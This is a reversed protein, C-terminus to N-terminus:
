PQSRPLKFTFTTGAAEESDVEISGGHGSVIQKAIYLGLGLHGADRSKSEVSSMPEFIRHFDARPIPSGLNHVSVIVTSATGQAKVTIRSGSAGHTRANTLLNSLVQSIRGKDFSGTLDGTIELHVPTDPRSAVVEEVADRIVTELDIHTRTIPIASGLQSRTFDLLDDVMHNMRLGSSVIRSALTETQPSLDGIEQLFQASTIIAGLPSRLDHGLMALFTERTRDISTVFRVTSEALAQDIAENFRVLDEIDTEDLAGRGAIWLRIVSARLARYESVMAAVSFGSAARGSGHEQAATDESAADVDADSHGKSKAASERSTQPTEVDRAISKLMAKAHDRLAAIDM